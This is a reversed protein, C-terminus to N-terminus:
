ASEEKPNNSPTFRGCRCCVVPPNCYDHGKWSCVTMEVLWFWANWVNDIM